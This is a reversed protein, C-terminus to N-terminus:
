AADWEADVPAVLDTHALVSGVLSPRAPQGVPVLKAVPVGRKTVVIEEGSDAVEDLLALCRAKFEGAPLTRRSNDMTVHGYACLRVAADHSAAPVAPAGPVRNFIMRSTSSFRGFHPHNEVVNSAAWCAADGM